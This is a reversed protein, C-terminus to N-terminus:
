YNLIEMLKIWMGYCYFIAVNGIDTILIVCNIINICLEYNTMEMYTNLGCEM